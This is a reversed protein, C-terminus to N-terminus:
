FKTSLESKGNVSICILISFVASLKLIVPNAATKIEKYIDFFNDSIFDRLIINCCAIVLSSLMM